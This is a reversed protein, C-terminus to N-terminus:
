RQVQHVLNAQLGGGEPNDRNLLFLRNTGLNLESFMTYYYESQPINFVFDWYCECLNQEFKVM